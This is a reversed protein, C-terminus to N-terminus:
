DNQADKELYDAAANLLRALRRIEEISMVDIEAVLPEEYQDSYARGSEMDISNYCNVVDTGYFIWTTYEDPAYKAVYITIDECSDHGAEHLHIPIPYDTVEHDRNDVIIVNNDTKM